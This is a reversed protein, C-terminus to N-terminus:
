KDAPSDEDTKKEFLRDDALLKKYGEEGRISDLDRDKRIWARDLFGAKVAKELWEVGKPRDGQLASLCALNYYTTGINIDRAKVLKHVEVARILEHYVQSAEEYRKLRTFLLGLSFLQDCGVEKLDPTEGKLLQDANLRADRLHDELPKKDGQRHLAVLTEERIRRSVRSQTEDNAFAKLAALAGEGGIEGLAMVALEKMTARFKEARDHRHTRRFVYARDSLIRILVPVAKERGLTELERFQGEFFGTSEEEGFQTELLREVEGRAYYSEITEAVSKRLRGAAVAKGVLEIAKPGISALASESAEKITPDLETMFEILRPIARESQADGLAIVAQRRIDKDEDALAEILENEARIGLRNFFKFCEEHLERNKEARFLRGIPELAKTSEIERLTRISELRVVSDKGELGRVLADEARLGQSQLYDAAARRVDPPCDGLFLESIPELAKESRIAKLGVISKLRTPARANKLGALFALEGAPGARQLFDFAQHLPGEEAEQGFLRTVAALVEDSQSGRLGLLCDRRISADADGLHKLLFPEAAKSLALLCKFAAEKVGKDSERDYLDAVKGACKQSKMEMLSQLAGRRFEPSSHALMVIFADEADKGLTQLLRFAADRVSPDDDKSFLDVARGRAATSKLATLLELCARRVRYDTSGLAEVLQLEAAKGVKELALRAPEREELFDAGLQEILQRIKADDAKEEQPALALCVLAAMLGM